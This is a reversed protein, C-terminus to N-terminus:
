VSRPGCKGTSTGDPCVEMTFADSAVTFCAGPVYELPLGVCVGGSGVSCPRWTGSLVVCLCTPTDYFCSDAFGGGGGCVCVVCCPNIGLAPQPPRKVPWGVFEFCQISAPVCARMVKVLWCYDEGIVLVDYEFLNVTSIGNEGGDCICSCLYRCAPM